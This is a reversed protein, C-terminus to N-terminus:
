YFDKWHFNFNKIAEEDGILSLRSKALKRTVLCEVHFPFYAQRDGKICESNVVLSDIKPIFSNQRDAGM